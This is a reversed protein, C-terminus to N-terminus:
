KLTIKLVCDWAEGTYIFLHLDFSYRRKVLYGICKEFQLVQVTWYSESEHVSFFCKFCCYLQLFLLLRSVLGKVLVTMDWIIFLMYRLLVLNNYCFTLAKARSVPFSQVKSLFSYGPGERGWGRSFIM